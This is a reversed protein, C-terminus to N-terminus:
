SYLSFDDLSLITYRSKSENMRQETSEFVEARKLLDTDSDETGSHEELETMRAYSLAKNPLWRSVFPKNSLQFFDKSRERLLHMTCSQRCEYWNM